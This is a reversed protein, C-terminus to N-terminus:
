SKVMLYLVLQSNQVSVKLMNLFNGELKLKNLTKMTFPHQIKDLAKGTDKSIFM